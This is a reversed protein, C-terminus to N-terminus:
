SRERLTFQGYMTGSSFGVEDATIDVKLGAKHTLKEMDFVPIELRSVFMAVTDLVEDLLENLVKNLSKRAFDLPGWDGKLKVELESRKLDLEIAVKAGGNVVKLRIVPKVTCEGSLKISEGIGAVKGSVKASAKVKMTCTMKDGSIDVTPNIISAKVECEGSFVSYSAKEEKKFPKDPTLAALVLNLADERVVARVRGAGAIPAMDTPPLAMGLQTTEGAIVRAYANIQDAEVTASTVTANFVDGVGQTLEPLLLGELWKVLLPVVVKELVQSAVPDVQGDTTAVAKDVKMVLRPGAIFCTALIDARANFELKKDAFTLGLHITDVTCLINSKGAQVQPPLPALNLRPSSPISYEYSVGLEPLEGSQAFYKSYRRYYYDVVFQLLNEDATLYIAETRQPHFNPAKSPEATSLM